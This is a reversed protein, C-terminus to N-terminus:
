GAKREIFKNRLSCGLSSVRVGIKRGRAREREREREGSDQLVEPKERARSAATVVDIVGMVLGVEVRGLFQSM